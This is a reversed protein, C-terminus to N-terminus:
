LRLRDQDIAANPRDRQELDAFENLNAFFTAPVYHQNGARRISRCGETVLAIGEPGQEALVEADPSM